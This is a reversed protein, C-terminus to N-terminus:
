QRSANSIFRGFKPLGRKAGARTGIRTQPQATSAGSTSTAVPILVQSSYSDPGGISLYHDGATLGTPVTMNLQYLGAFQPALGQFGINAAVGDFDATITNTTTNYPPNSSGAAGDAVPPNVDGLGTLYVSITEGTKAPSSPTILS